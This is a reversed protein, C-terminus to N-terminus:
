LLGAPKQGPRLTDIVQQLLAAATPRPAVVVPQLEHKKLATATTSGIAFYLTGSQPENAQLYSQVASPSMFLIGAYPGEARQPNLVTEYVVLEEFPLGAERLRAPITDLRRNGCCFVIHSGQEQAIIRTALDIAYHASGVVRGPGFYREVARATSPAIAYFRWHAGAQGALRALSRVTQVSTIVLVVEESALEKLRAALAPDQLPKTEILNLEDVVIGADAAQRCLGPGLSRTALVRLETKDM